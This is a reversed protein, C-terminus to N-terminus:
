LIEVLMETEQANECCSERKKNYFEGEAGTGTTSASGSIMCSDRSSHLTQLRSDKESWISTLVSYLVFCGLCPSMNPETYQAAAVCLNPRREGTM